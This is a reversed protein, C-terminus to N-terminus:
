KKGGYDAFFKCLDAFNEPSLYLLVCGQDKLQITVCCSEMAKDVDIHMDPDNQWGMMSFSPFNTNLDEKKLSM